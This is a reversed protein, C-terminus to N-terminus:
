KGSLLYILGIQWNQNVFQFVDESYPTLGKFYGVSIGTRHFQYTARSTLGFEISRSASLSSSRGVLFNMEPGLLLSFNKIPEISIMPTIGIYNYVSNAIINESLKHYTYGKQQFNLGIQSIFIKSLSHEYTLGAYFGAKSEITPIGILITASSRVSTTSNLYGARIWFQNKEQAWLQSTSFSILVILLSLCKICACKKYILNSIYVNKVFVKKFPFLTLSKM